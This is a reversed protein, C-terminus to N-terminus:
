NQCSGLGERKKKKKKGEREEDRLSCRGAERGNSIRKKLKPKAQMSAGWGGMNEPRLHLFM